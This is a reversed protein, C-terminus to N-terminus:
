DLPAGAGRDLAANMATVVEPDFQTGANAELEARADAESMARRYPRDSVMAHYADVVFVIRAGIPIRSGRLGDPYGGGDWREHDHRVIRRVDTLFPVPALIQEGVVPHRKIVDFEERTLPGPKNLIADPVAIKGIDHFIAGYRVAELESEPLGLERGVEVALEAIWRAHEATYGDKAELAAALAEAVGLHTQELNRYLEATRLAAGAHDAVLEALRADDEELAGPQASQVVVAGWLDTGVYLPVALESRLGLEPWSSSGPDDALDGVLVPRRERLCREVAGDDQPQAWVWRGIDAGTRSSSAVAAMLGEGSLRMIAAFDYELNETLEAATAEAVAEVELLRSLKAGVRSAIAMRRRRSEARADYPDRSTGNTSVLGRRNGAHHKRKVRLLSQDAREILTIPGEGPRWEALGAHAGLTSGGPVSVQRLRGLLRGVLPESEKEPTDPLILAFEDGGFRAVHDQERVASRLVEGVARLVADGSLHGFRENVSKFDELDLLVLTFPVAGRDARAVEARLRGQFAAHNICGTLADRSAARQAAAHDDANRCAVSALESFAALLETEAETIWRGDLFGVSIVGDLGGRRRLPTAMASRVGDLASTAESTLGDGEYDNSAQAQGTAIVRGCLGENLGRRHGIFDDPVGHAAVAHLGDHGDGFYVVVIEGGTAYSAEACLTSLVRKPDLSEGLAKAARALAAQRNAHLERDRSLWFRQLAHAASDTVAELLAREAPDFARDYSRAVGVLIRDNGDGGPALALSRADLGALGEGVRSRVGDGALSGVALPDHLIRERERESLGAGAVLTPPSGDARAAMVFAKEAEFAESLEDCVAFGLEDASSASNVLAIIEARRSAEVFRRVLDDELGEREPSLQSWSRTTATERREESV